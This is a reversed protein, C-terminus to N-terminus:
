RRVTDDVDSDPMRSRDQEFYLVATEGYTRTQTIGWGEPARPAVSRVSRELMIVGDPDVTGRATLDGLLTECDVTEVAYPPDIFVLDFPGSQSKAYKEAKTRVTRASMDSTWSRERRLRAFTRGLMTAAPGSSEVAVLSVAGRSLAEIGLAGTGAYLDLVRAGDLVGIAQLHSFIAEKARDTTPRTGNKPTILEFGKFRGAIIRM